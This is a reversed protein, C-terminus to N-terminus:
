RAQETVSEVRSDLMERIQRGLKKPSFPKGAYADAGAAIGQAVAAAQVAASLLLVRVRATSPDERLARCVDLGTMEPMSVDLIVLDPGISRVAALAQSGTGVAAGVVAGAKIVALGILERIDPDDDAIVVTDPRTM